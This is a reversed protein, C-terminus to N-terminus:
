LLKNGLIKILEDVIEAGDPIIEKGENKVSNCIPVKLRHIVEDQIFQSCNDNGIKGSLIIKDKDYGLIETFYYIFQHAFEYNQPAAFVICDISKKFIENKLFLLNPVESINGALEIIHFDSKIDIMNMKTFQNSQYVFDDANAYTNSSICGTSDIFDWGMIKNIDIEIESGIKGFSFSGNIINIWDRCFPGGTKKEFSITYGMSRLENKIGIGCTTKGNEMDSSSILITPVKKSKDEDLVKINKRWNQLNMTNGTDDLLIGLVKLKIPVEDGFNYNLFGAINMRGLNDIITGGKIVGNYKHTILNYLGGAFSLSSYRNGIVVIALGKKVNENTFTYKKNYENYYVREIINSKFAIDNEPPMPIDQVECLVLDNNKAICSKDYMLYESKVLYPFVRRIGTGCQVNYQDFEVKGIKRNTFSPLYM